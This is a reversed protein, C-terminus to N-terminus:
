PGTPLPIIILTLIGLLIITNMRNNEAANQMGMTITGLNYEVNNYDSM